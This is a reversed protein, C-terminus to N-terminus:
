CVYSGGSKQNLCEGANTYFKAHLLVAEDERCKGHIYWFTRKM